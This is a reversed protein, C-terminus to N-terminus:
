PYERFDLDCTNAASAQSFIIYLTNTDNYLQEQIHEFKLIRTQSHPIKSGHKFYPRCTNLM